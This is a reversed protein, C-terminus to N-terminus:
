PMYFFVRLCITSIESDRVESVPPNNKECLASIPCTLASESLGYILPSM